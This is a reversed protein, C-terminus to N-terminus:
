VYILCSTYPIVASIFDPFGFVIESISEGTSNIRSGAQIGIACEEGSSSSIFSRKNLDQSLGCLCVSIFGLLCKVFDM